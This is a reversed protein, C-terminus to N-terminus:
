NRLGTVTFLLILGYLSTIAFLEAVDIYCFYRITRSSM